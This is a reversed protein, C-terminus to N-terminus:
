IPVGARTAPPRRGLRSDDRQCKISLRNNLGLAGAVRQPEALATTRYLLLLELQLHIAQQGVINRSQEGGHNAQLRGALRALLEQRRNQRGSKHGQAQATSQGRPELRIAPKRTCTRVPLQSIRRPARPEPTASVSAGGRLRLVCPRGVLDPTKLAYSRRRTAAISPPSDM